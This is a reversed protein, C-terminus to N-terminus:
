SRPDREIAIRAAAPSRKEVIAYRANEAVVNEVDPVVHESVVAFHTPGSRVREYEARTLAIPETCDRSGCECLYDSSEELALPENVEKIRENVERFLAENKAVRHQRSDM